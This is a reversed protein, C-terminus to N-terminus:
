APALSKFASLSRIRSCNGTERAASLAVSYRMRVPVASGLRIGKSSTSASLSIALLLLESRATQYMRPRLSHPHESVPPVPPIM